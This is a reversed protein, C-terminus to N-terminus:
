EKIKIADKTAAFQSAIKKVSKTGGGIILGTLIMDVIESDQSSGGISALYESGLGSKIAHLHFSFALFIGIGTSIWPRVEFNSFFKSGNEGELGKGLYEQYLKTDFIQELAVTLVTAVFALQVLTLSVNLM